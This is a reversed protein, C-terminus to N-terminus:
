ALVLLPLIPYLLLPLTKGPRYACLRLPLLDASGARDLLYLLLLPEALDCDLTLPTVGELLETIPLETTRLLARTAELVLAAAGRLELVTVGELDATTEVLLLM